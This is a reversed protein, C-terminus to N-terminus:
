SPRHYREVPTPGRLSHYIPLCSRQEGLLRNLAQDIGDLVEIRRGIIRIPEPLVGAAVVQGHEDFSHGRLELGRVRPM